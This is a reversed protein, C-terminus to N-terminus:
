AQRYSGARRGEALVAANATDWSVALSEAVRAITLHQYVIGELAWQLGTRSLKARPEAATSMDQRWVHGCQLLVYEVATGPRGSFLQTDRHHGPDLLRVMASATLAPQAPQGRELEFGHHVGVNRERCSSLRDGSRADSGYRTFYIPSQLISTDTIWRIPM